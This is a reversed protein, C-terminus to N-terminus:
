IKYKGTFVDINWATFIADLAGIELKRLPTKGNVKAYFTSNPWDCTHQIKARVKDQEGAPLMNYAKVFGRLSTNTVSNTKQLM